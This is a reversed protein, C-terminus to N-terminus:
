EKPTAPKVAIKKGDLETGDLETMAKKAEEVTGMEVFGFGKGQGTFRDMIVRASVVKGAQAFHKELQVDTLTYSLGGIFLKTTINMNTGGKEFTTQLM